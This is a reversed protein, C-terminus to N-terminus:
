QTVTPPLGFLERIQPDPGTRAAQSYYIRGDIEVVTDAMAYLDRCADKYEMMVDRLDLGKCDAKRIARRLSEADYANLTTKARVTYRKCRQVEILEPRGAAIQKKIEALIITPTDVEHGKLFEVVDVCDVSEELRKICWATTDYWLGEHLRLQEKVRATLHKVYRPSCQVVSQILAPLRETAVPNSSVQKLVAECALRICRECGYYSGCDPAGCTYPM